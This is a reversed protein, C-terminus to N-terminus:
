PRAVRERQLEVLQLINRGRSKVQIFNLQQRASFLHRSTTSISGMPYVRGPMGKPWVATAADADADTAVGPTAADAAAADAAAAPAAALLRRRASPAGLRAGSFTLASLPTASLSVYAFTVLLLLLALAASAAAAAAPNADISRRM